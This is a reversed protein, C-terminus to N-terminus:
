MSGWAQYSGPGKDHTMRDAGLYPLERSVETHGTGGKEEKIVEQSQKSKSKSQVEEEEEKM